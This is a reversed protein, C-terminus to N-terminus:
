KGKLPRRIYLVIRCLFRIMRLIIFLNINLMKLDLSNTWSLFSIVKMNFSRCM